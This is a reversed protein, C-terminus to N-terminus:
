GQDCALAVPTRRVIGLGEGGHAVRFRAQSGVRLGQQCFQILGGDVPLGIEVAGQFFGLQQGGAQGIYQEVARGADRDAQGGVNRRVVQAFDGAGADPQQFAGFGGHGFQAFVHLAWVVRGSALDEGRGLFQAFQVLGSGTGDADPGADGVFFFPQDDRGQGILDGARADHRLDGLLHPFLFQGHDLIQAVFGVMFGRSPQDDDGAALPHVPLREQQMQEGCGVQLPRGADIEIDDVQVAARSDHVQAGQQPGPQLEALLGDGTPQVVPQIRDVLPQM